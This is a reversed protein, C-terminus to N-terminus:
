QLFVIVTIFISWIIPLSNSVKDVNSAPPLETTPDPLTKNACNIGDFGEMCFCKKSNLCYGNGSCDDPCAKKMRGCFDEISAPCDFRANHSTTVTKGPADCVVDESNGIKITIKGSEDCSSKLCKPQNNLMFCRSNAGYFEMAEPKNEEPVDRICYKGDNSKYKCKGMFAEYNQCTTKSMYDPSCGKDGLNSCYENTTPCLVGFYGTTGKGWTYDQAYEFNVNYWGTGHMFRLTFESIFAPLEKSPNLFEVPMFSKEWHSGASGEGGNNELPVGQLNPDNFFTRAFSLVEPLVILNRKEGGFDVNELIVENKPITSGDSKRFKDFQDKSFFLIHTFEHVFTSFYLLYNMKSNVIFAMNVEFVGITPRRTLKDGDCSWATAFASEAPKNIVDVLVYLDIDKKFAPININNCDMGSFTLTDGSSVKTAEQYYRKSADLIRKAYNYKGAFQQNQRVWNDGRGYEVHIRLQRETMQLLRKNGSGLISPEYNTGSGRIISSQVQDHRCSAHIGHAFIMGCLLNLTVLIALVFVRKM